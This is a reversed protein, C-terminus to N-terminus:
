IGCESCLGQEGFKKDYKNMNEPDEKAGLQKREKKSLTSLTLRPEHWDLSDPM